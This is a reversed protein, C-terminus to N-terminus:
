VYRAIAMAAATVLLLLAVVRGTADARARLRQIEAGLQEREQPTKVAAMEQQLAAARAIAPRVLAIGLAFAVLAAAGGLAFTMGVSSAMFSPQFGASDRGYLWLGSVVTAVALLPMITMLGRRQLAAVVKGGDPGVEGLAPVLLLGTFVAFGVWLVGSSVHVLRLVVVLLDM